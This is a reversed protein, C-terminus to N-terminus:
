GQNSNILVCQRACVFSHPQQVCHEVRRQKTMIILLLPTHTHVLTHLRTHVFIAFLPTELCVMLLRTHHTLLHPVWLREVVEQRSVYLGDFLSQLLGLRYVSHCRAEHAHLLYAEHWCKNNLQSLGVICPMVQHKGAIGASVLARGRSPADARSSMGGHVNRAGELWGWCCRIVKCSQIHMSRCIWEHCAATQSKIHLEFLSRLRGM